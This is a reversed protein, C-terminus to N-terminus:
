PFNIAYKLILLVFLNFCAFNGDVKWSTCCECELVVASVRLCSCTPYYYFIVVVVVVAAASFLMLQLLARLLLLQFFLIVWGM